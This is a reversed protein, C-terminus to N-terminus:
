DTQLKRLALTERKKFVPAVDAAWWDDPVIGSTLSKRFIMTLPGVIESAISVFFRSSLEDAGSAKDERLRLLYKAVIEETIEINRLIEDESGM